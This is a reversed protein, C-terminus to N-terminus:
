NEHLFLTSGGAADGSRAAGSASPDVARRAGTWHLATILLPIAARAWDFQGLLGRPLAFLISFMHPQLRAVLWLGQLSLVAGVPLLWRRDLAARRARWCFLQTTLALAAVDMMRTGVWLWPFVAPHGAALSFANSSGGFGLQIVLWAGGGMGAGLLVLWLVPGALLPLLGLGVLPHRGWWSALRLASVHREALVAPDGLQGAAEASPNERGANRATLELDELHEAAERLIRRAAPRPCGRVALQERLAPLFFDDRM